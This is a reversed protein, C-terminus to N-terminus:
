RANRRLLFETFHFGIEDGADRVFQARGDGRHPQHRFIQFTAFNRLRPLLPFIETEDHLFAPPKDDSMSFTSSKERM